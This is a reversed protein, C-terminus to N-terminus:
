IIQHLHSVGSADDLCVRTGRGVSRVNIIIIIIIIVWQM